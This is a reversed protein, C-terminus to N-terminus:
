GAQAAFGQRLAQGVKPMQGDGVSNQIYSEPEDFYSMMKVIDRNRQAWALVDAM